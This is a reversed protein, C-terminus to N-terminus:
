KFYNQLTTLVMALEVPTANKIHEELRTKSITRVQGILAFSPVAAQVPVRLPSANGQKSLPVVTVTDWTPKQNLVDPSVVLCPRRGDQESGKVPSFDVWYIEGRNCVTPM